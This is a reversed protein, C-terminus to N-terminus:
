IAKVQGQVVQLSFVYHTQSGGGMVKQLCWNRIEYFICMQPENLSRLLALGDSRCMINNRKELHAVQERSVGLDPINEIQEDLVQEEDRGLQNCELHELEQEPCLECWADELVGDNDAANQITDLEDADHEFKSRNLDVVSKVSHLLGDALRVSGGSYFQQYTEFGPPKLQVDKRYLMFLQLISQYFLEPNKTESFHVYRMVAPQSRTRKLVFGLDNNLKIRNASKENKSLVRYESAFTVICMDNFSGDNPRNKYRDVGSPMWMDETTLNGSAAKQKLVRLPLSMKVVNDGVPVFVVKRSCEKPHMNTLRYVAEQACVDRNHLYVRGLNKLADKASANGEKAAERQANGLLLGM